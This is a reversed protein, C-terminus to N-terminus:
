EDCVEKLEWKNCPCSGHVFYCDLNKCNLHNRALDLREQLQKNETQLIKIAKDSADMFEKTHFCSENLVQKYEQVKKKLTEYSPKHEPCEKKSLNAINCGVIFGHCNMCTKESM